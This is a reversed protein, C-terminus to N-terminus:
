NIFQYLDSPVTHKHIKIKKQLNEGAAQGFLDSNKLVCVLVCPSSQVHMYLM